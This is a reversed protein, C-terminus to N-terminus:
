AGPAKIPSKEPAKFFPSEDCFRYFGTRFRLLAFGILVGALNAVLDGLSADRHPVYSQLGEAAIALALVAFAPLVFMGRMSAVTLFMFGTFFVIHVLKDFPEDFGHRLSFGLVLGMLFFLGMMVISPTHFHPRLLVKTERTLRHKAASFM